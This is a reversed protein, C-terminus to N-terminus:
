DSQSKKQEIEKSVEEAKTHMEFHKQLYQSVKEVGFNYLIEIRREATTGALWPVPFYKRGGLQPDPKALQEVRRAAQSLAGLFLEGTSDSDLLKQLIELMLDANPCETFVYPFLATLQEASWTQLAMKTAQENAAIRQYRVESKMSLLAKASKVQAPRLLGTLLMHLLGEDDLYEPRHLTVFTLLWDITRSSSPAVYYKVDGEKGFADVLENNPIGWKSSVHEYTRHIPIWLLRSALADRTSPTDELWDEAPQMACIIHTRPHLRLEETVQRETLLSLVTGLVEPRPKDLEDLLLIGPRETLMRLAAIPLFRMVGQQDDPRPYGGSDEPLKTSLLLRVLPKDLKRALQIVRSTKGEGHPGVLCPWIPVVDFTSNLEWIDLILKEVRDM